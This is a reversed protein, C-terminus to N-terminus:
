IFELKKEITKTTIAQMHSCFVLKYFRTQTLISCALYCDNFTKIYVNKTKAMMSTKYSLYIPLM